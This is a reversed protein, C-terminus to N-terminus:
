RNPGPEEVTANDPEAQAARLVDDLALGTMQHIGRLLLWLTLMMIAMSPVVIIPWSWAMMRSVEANFADTGSASVVMWRALIFNLIASIFFSAALLCTCKVLLREFASEAQHERLRSQVKEVDMIEPNFLLTRILPYPTKLSIVVALGLILPIAAEKVAFWATPIELVGIGGTLLVSILGLISFLNYKGRRVYDYIFYGIPFALAILLIALAVNGVHAELLHGFWAKGKSLILIPILLNFGINLLTNERGPADSKGDASVKKSTPDNSPQQEAM